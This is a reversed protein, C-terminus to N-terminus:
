RSVPTSSINKSKRALELFRKHEAATCFGMVYEVGAARALSNTLEIAEHCEIAQESRLAALLVGSAAGNTGTKTV